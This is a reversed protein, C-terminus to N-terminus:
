PTVETLKFAADGNQINDLAPLTVVVNGWMNPKVLTKGYYKGTRTNYWRLEYESGNFLGSGVNKIKVKLGELPIFEEPAKKYDKPAHDVHQPLWYAICANNERLNYWYASRNHFWGIVQTQDESVLQLCEVKKNNYVVPEYGASSMNEEKFFASLPELDVQYGRKHIAHDWWWNLGCGFTGMFSTAWINNHFSLDTCSDPSVADLGGNSGGMEEILIPKNEVQKTNVMHDIVDFRKGRNQSENQGYDHIFMVDALPYVKNKVNDSEKSAFSVSIPKKFPKLYNYMERFWAHFIEREAKGTKDKENYNRFVNNVESLLEIIGTSNSYGWRAMFYRLKKKYTAKAMSDTFFDQYDDVGPLLRYPNRGWRDTKWEEGQRFQDHIELFMIAFIEREEMKAMVKDIAYAHAMNYVNPKDWEFELSWPVLAIRTFNGGADALEDLWKLHQQNSEPTVESYGSWCMNEGIAFFSSQDKHVLYRDKIDGTRQVMLGGKQVSEDVKIVLDESSFETEVLKGSRKVILRATWEGAYDLTTRCRWHDLSKNLIWQNEQEYYSQYYFAPRIMTDKDLFFWVQVDVQDPDFPNIGENGKSAFYTQIEEPITGPLKISLEIKDYKKVLGNAPEILDMMPFSQALSLLSSLILCLFTTFRLM